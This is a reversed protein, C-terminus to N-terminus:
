KINVSEPLGGFRRKGADIDVAPSTVDAEVRPAKHFNQSGVMVDTPLASRAGPAPGESVLTGQDLPVLNTRQFQGDSAQTSLRKVEVVTVGKQGPHLDLMQEQGDSNHMSASAISTSITQDLAVCPHGQAHAGSSGPNTAEMIPPLRSRPDAGASIQRMAEFHREFEDLTPSSM